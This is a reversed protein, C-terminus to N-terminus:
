YKSEYRQIRYYTRISIYCIGIHQFFNVVRGPNSGTFLTAGACLMNGWPLLDDCLQSKWVRLHGNICESEIVVMTGVIDAIKPTSNSLCSPCIKFLELLCSEFVIYKRGFPSSPEPYEKDNEDKIDQDVDFEAEL